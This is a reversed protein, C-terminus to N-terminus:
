EGAGTIQAIITDRKHELAAAKAAELSLGTAVDPDDHMEPANPSWVSFENFGTHEVVYEGFPTQASCSGTHCYQSWELTINERITALIADAIDECNTVEAGNTAQYNDEIAAAIAERTGM